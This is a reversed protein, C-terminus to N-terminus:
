SSAALSVLSAAALVAAFVGFLRDFSRLRDIRHDACLQRYQPRINPNSAILAVDRSSAELRFYDFLRYLQEEAIDPYQVIIREIARRRLKREAHTTQRDNM